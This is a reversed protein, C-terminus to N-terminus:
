RIICHVSPTYTTTLTSALVRRPLIASIGRFKVNSRYEKGSIKITKAKAPSEVIVLNKSMRKENPAKRLFLLCHLLVLNSLYSRNWSVVETEIAKRAIKNGITAFESRKDKRFGLPTRM